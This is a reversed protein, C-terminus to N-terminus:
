RSLWAPATCNFTRPHIIFVAWDRRSEYSTAGALPEDKGLVGALYLAQEFRPTVLLDDLCCVGSM